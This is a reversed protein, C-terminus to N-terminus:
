RQQEGGGPAVVLRAAEALIAAVYLLLGTVFPLAETRFFKIIAGLIVAILVVKFAGALGFFWRQRVSPTLMRGVTWCHLGWAALSLAGGLLFFASSALSRAVWAVAGVPLLALQFRRIYRLHMAGGDAAMQVQGVVAAGTGMM